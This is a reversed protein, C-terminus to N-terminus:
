PDSRYTEIFKPLAVHSKVSKDGTKKVRVRLSHSINPLRCYTHKLKYCSRNISYWNRARCKYYGGYSKYASENYPCVQSCESYNLNFTIFLVLNEWSSIIVVYVEDQFNGVSELSFKGASSAKKNKLNSRKSSKSALIESNDKYQRAFICVFIQKKPFM